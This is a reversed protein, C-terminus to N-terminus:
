TEALIKKRASGHNWIIQLSIASVKMETKTLRPLKRLRNRTRLIFARREREHKENKGWLERGRNWLSSLARLWHCSNFSRNRKGWYNKCNLREWNDKLLIFVHSPKHKGSKFPWHFMQKKSLLIIDSWM